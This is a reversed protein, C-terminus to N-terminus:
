RPAGDSTRRRYVCDTSHVGHAPMWRRPRAGRMEGTELLRLLAEAEAIKAAIVHPPFLERAWRTEFVLAGLFSHQGRLMDLPALGAEEALGIVIQQIWAPNLVQARDADRIIKGSLDLSSASPKYPFETVRILAEIEPLAERDAPQANRRLAAIAIEINLRDSDKGPRCHGPHDFDHFLAAILLNRIKRAGLEHRYFGAAQYCLWTVHLIHRLNHYPNRLNCSEFFLVQFYSILDGEYLGEENAIIQPIDGTIRHHEPAAAQHLPVIQATCCATQFTASM